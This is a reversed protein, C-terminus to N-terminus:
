SLHDRQQNRYDSGGRSPQGGYKSRRGGNHNDGKYKGQYEYDKSGKRFAKPVKSSPLKISPDYATPKFVQRLSPCQVERHKITKDNISWPHRPCKHFLLAHISSDDFTCDSRGGNEVYINWEIM